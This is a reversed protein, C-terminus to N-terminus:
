VDIENVSHTWSGFKLSCTQQDFPFERPNVECSSHVICRPIWTVTGDYAVTIRS